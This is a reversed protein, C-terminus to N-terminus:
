FNTSSIHSLPLNSVEINAINECKKCIKNYEKNFFNQNFEMVYKNENCNICLRKKIIEM